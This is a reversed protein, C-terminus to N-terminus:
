NPSQKQHFNSGAPTYQKGPSSPFQLEAWWGLPFNSYADSFGVSRTVMFGYLELEVNVEQKYQNPSKLQIADSELSYRIYVM